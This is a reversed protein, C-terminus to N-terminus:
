ELFSPMSRTIVYSTLKCIQNAATEALVIDVDKGHCVKQSVSLAPEAASCVFLCFIVAAVSSASM